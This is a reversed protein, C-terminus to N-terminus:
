KNMISAIFFQKYTFCIPKLNVVQMLDKRRKQSCPSYQKKQISKFILKTIIWKQMLINLEKRYTKSNSNGYCSSKGSNNIKKYNQNSPRRPFMAIPTNKKLPSDGLTLITMLVIVLSAAM